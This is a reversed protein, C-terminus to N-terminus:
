FLLAISLAANKLSTAISNNNALMKQVGAWEISITRRALITYLFSSFIGQGLIKHSYCGICRKRFCVNAICMTNKIIDAALSWIHGLITPFLERSSGFYAHCDWLLKWLLLAAIYHLHERIMPFRIGLGPQHCPGIRRRGVTMLTANKRTRAGCENTLGKIECRLIWFEM